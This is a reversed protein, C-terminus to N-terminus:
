REGTGLEGVPSRVLALAVIAANMCFLNEVIYMYRPAGWFIVAYVGWHTLVISGVVFAARRPWRLLTLLSIAACSFLLATAILTMAKAPRYLALDKHQWGQSVDNTPLRFAWVMASTSPTYLGITGSIASSILSTPHKVIYDIGKAYWYRNAELEGMQPTVYVGAVHGYHDPNHGQHFTMGGNTGLGTGPGMILTNRVYWPLVTVAALVAILCAHALRIRISQVTPLLRIGCLVPVYFLGEGRTLISLGAIVGSIIATRYSGSQRTDLALLLAALFLVTFLPETGLVPSQFVFPPYIAAIACATWGVDKRGFLARATLGLLGCGIASLVVNCGALFRTSESISMAIALFAPYGIPRFASPEPYGFQGHKLLGEALARYEEFDSVPVPDVYALWALRILVAFLCTGILVRTWTSDSQHSDPVGNPLIQSM